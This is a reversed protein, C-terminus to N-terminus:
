DGHTGAGERRAPVYIYGMGIARALRAARSPGENPYSEIEQILVVDAQSLAEDELFARALGDIDAGREVNFTVVRLRGPLDGQRAVVQPPPPELEPALDGQILEWPVWDGADGPSQSCAGAAILGLLAVGKVLVLRSEVWAM